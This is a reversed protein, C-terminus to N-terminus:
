VETYTGPSRFYFRHRFKGNVRQQFSRRNRNRLRVALAATPVLAHFLARGSRLQHKRITTDVYPMNPTVLSYGLCVLHQKEVRGFAIPDAVGHRTAIRTQRQDNAFRLQTFERWTSKQAVTRRQCKPLLASPNIRPGLHKYRKKTV